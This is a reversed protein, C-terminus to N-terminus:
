ATLTFLKESFTWRPIEAKIGPDKRRRKNAAGGDAYRLARGRVELEVQL